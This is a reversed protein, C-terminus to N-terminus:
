EKLQEQNWLDIQNKLTWYADLFKNLKIKKIYNRVLNQNYIFGRNSIIWNLIRQHTEM